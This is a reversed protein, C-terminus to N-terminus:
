AMVKKVLRYTHPDSSRKSKLREVKGADTLIKIADRWDNFTFGLACQLQIQTAGEKHNKLHQEIQRSLEQAYNPQNM